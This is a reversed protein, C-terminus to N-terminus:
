QWGPRRYAITLWVFNHLILKQINWLHKYICRYVYIYLFIYVCVHAHGCVCVRVYVCVCVCVCIIVWIVHM